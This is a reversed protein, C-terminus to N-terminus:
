EGGQLYDRLCRAIHSRIEVQMAPQSLDILVGVYENGLATPLDAGDTKVPKDLAEALDGLHWEGFDAAIESYGESRGEAWRDEIAVTRNEIWGLERLRQVFAAARSAQTSPSASGLFGITPLKTPQQAHVAVPWAAVTGC